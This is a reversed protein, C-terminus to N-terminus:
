RPFYSLIVGVAGTISPLMRTVRDPLYFPRLLDARTIARTNLRKKRGTINFEDCSYLADRVPFNLKM